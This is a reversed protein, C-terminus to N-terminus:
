VFTGVLGWLLEQTVFDSNANAAQFVGILAAEFAQNPDPTGPSVQGLVANAAQMLYQVDIFGGSTLGTIGYASAYPLLGGAYVLDTAKVYGTLVNLDMAALQASLQYAATANPGTSLWARLQAVTTPDFPAGHQDVLNLGDLSLLDAKTILKANHNKDWFTVPQAGTTSSPDPGISVVYMTGTTSTGPDIVYNGASAGSLTATIAYQGVAGTSTATTSLTVTVQDGYATTYSTSGIFPTGNVSGTLPPPNNGVLMLSSNTNVTLAGKVTIDAAFESTNGNADTATASLFTGPPLATPVNATFNGQGDTSVQAFGLFTQGEGFGSPDPTQNSFFEIHFSSSPYGALTGSITTGSGSSSAGTLVPYAQNDNANNASNLLIGLGTNDHISNGLISNGTGSDVDVGPGNCFAVTNGAGPTTGGITNNNSTSIQIGFLLTSKGRGSPGLLVVFEEQYLDMDVGRLAHVEVEGLWYVKTLGRAEFVAFGRRTPGDPKNLSLNM